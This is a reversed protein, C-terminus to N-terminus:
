KSPSHSQYKDEGPRIIQVFIGEPYKDYTTPMVIESDVPRPDELLEKLERGPFEM